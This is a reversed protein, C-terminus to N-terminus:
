RSLVKREKGSKEKGVENKRKRKRKYKVSEVPCFSKVKKGVKKGGIEKKKRERKRKLQLCAVRYLGKGMRGDMPGHAHTSFHSFMCKRGQGQGAGAWGDTTNAM